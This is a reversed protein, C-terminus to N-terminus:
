DGLCLGILRATQIMPHDLPVTKKKGAVKALPVPVM